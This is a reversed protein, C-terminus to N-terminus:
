DLQPSTTWDIAVNSPMHEAMWVDLSLRIARAVAVRDPIDCLWLDANADGRLGPKPSIYFCGLYGGAADRIIWSFSRKTTFEREHWALDILNEELTLGEPWDGFFDGFLPATAMVAAFDEDVQDPGLPTLRYTGLGFDRPFDADAFDPHPAMTTM